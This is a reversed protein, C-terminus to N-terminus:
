RADTQEYLTNAFCSKEASITNFTNFHTPRISDIRKLIHWLVDFLSSHGNDTNIQGNHITTDMNVPQYFQEGMNQNNNQDNQGFDFNQQQQDFQNNDHHGANDM